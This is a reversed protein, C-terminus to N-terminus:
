VSFPVTNINMSNHISICLLCVSFFSFLYVNFVFSVFCREDLEDKDCEKRFECM